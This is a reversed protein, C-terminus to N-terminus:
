LLTNKSSLQGCAADIDEGKSWRVLVRYGDQNEFMIRAFENIRDDTPRSYVGGADNFPILNLKCRIGRLLEVLQRAHEDTDNIAALLVYEFMVVRKKQNAITKAASILDNIKWKRGLPMLSARLADNPANLSIALKYRRNETIFRQIGPLVGATSITIRTAGLNFGREHHLIDAAQLVQDYNLFPEGMGMFVVNTIPQDVRERVWILQDVIEGANLNRLLGMEGTRCFKCGANCGVQASVCVTHRDIDIMSVTEIFYGDRTRFLIKQTPEHQSEQVREVSLTDWIGNKELWHRFSKTVNTMEAPDKVGHRYMWEFLQMARFRTQGLDACWAELQALSMGKVLVPGFTDATIGIKEPSGILQEVM